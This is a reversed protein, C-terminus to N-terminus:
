VEQWRQEEAIYVWTDEYQSQTVLRQLDVVGEQESKIAYTSNRNVTNVILTDVKQEKPKIVTNDVGTFGRIQDQFDRMAKQNAETISQVTKNMTSISYYGIGLSAVTAAYVLSRLGNM